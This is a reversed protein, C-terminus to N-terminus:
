NGGVLLGVNMTKMILILGIASEKENEHDVEVTPPRTRTVVLGM